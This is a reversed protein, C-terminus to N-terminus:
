KVMGAPTGKSNANRDQAAKLAKNEKNNLSSNKTDGLHGSVLMSDYDSSESSNFGYRHGFIRLWRTFDIDSYDANIRNEDGDSYFVLPNIKAENTAGSFTDHEAKDTFWMPLYFKNGGKIYSNGYGANKHGSKTWRSRVVDPDQRVMSATMGVQGTGRQLIRNYFKFNKYDNGIHNAFFKGGDTKLEGNIVAQNYEKTANEKQVSNPANGITKIGSDFGSILKKASNDALYGKDGTKWSYGQINHSKGVVYESSQLNTLIPTMQAGYVNSKNKIPDLHEVARPVRSMVISNSSGSLNTKESQTNAYLGTRLSDNHGNNYFKFGNAGAVGKRFHMGNDNFKWFSNISSYDAATDAGTTDEYRDHAEKMASSDAARYRIASGKALQSDFNMDMKTNDMLKKSSQGDLAGWGFRQLRVDSRIGDGAGAGITQDVNGLHETPQGDKAYRQLQTADYLTQMISVGQHKAALKNGDYNQGFYSNTVEPAISAFRPDIGTQYAIDARAVQGNKFPHIFNGDRSVFSRDGNVSVDRLHTSEPTTIKVRVYLPRRGHNFKNGGTRADISGDSHYGKAKLYGAKDKLDVGSYYKQAPKPLKSMDLTGNIVKQGTAQAGRQYNNILKEESSKNFSKISNANVADKLPMTKDYLSVTKNGIHSNDAPEAVIQIRVKGDLENLNPAFEVKSTTLLSFDDGNKVKNTKVKLANTNFYAKSGYKSIVKNSDHPGDNTDSTTQGHVANFDNAIDYTKDQKNLHDEMYNNYISDTKVRAKEKESTSMGKHVLGLRNNDGNQEFPTNTTVHITLKHNALTFVNQPRNYNENDKYKPNSPDVDGYPRYIIKPHQTEKSSGWGNHKVLEINGSAEGSKLDKVLTKGTTNDVVSIDKLDYPLELSDYIQFKADHGHMEDLNDKDAWNPMTVHLNYSTVRDFNQSQPKDTMSGSKNVQAEKHLTFNHKKPHVTVQNSVPNGPINKPVVQNGDGPQNNNDGFFTAKNTITPDENNNTVYRGNKKVEVPIAFLLTHNSMSKAASNTATWAVRQRGDLDLNNTAGDGNDGYAYEYWGIAKGAGDRHATKNYSGQTDFLAGLQKNEKLGNAGSNSLYYPSYHNEVGKGYDFNNIVGNKGNPGYVKGVGKKLQAQDAPQVYSNLGNVLAQQTTSTVGAASKGAKTLQDSSDYIINSMYSQSNSHIANFLTNGNESYPAMVAGSTGAKRAHQADLDMVMMPRNKTDLKLNPDLYDSFYLRKFGGDKSSYTNGANAIVYYYLQRDNKSDSNLKKNTDLISKYENPRISVNSNNGYRDIADGTADANLRRVGAIRDAKTGVSFFHLGNTSGLTGSTEGFKPNIKSVKTMVNTISNDSVGKVVQTQHKKVKATVKNTSTPNHVPHPRVQNTSNDPTEWSDFVEKTNLFEDNFDDRENAAMHDDLTGFMTIKIEGNDSTIAPKIDKDVQGNENHILASFKGSGDANAHFKFDTNKTLNASEHQNDSSSGVTVVATKYVFGKPFTEEGLKIQKLEDFGHKRIDGQPVTLTFAYEGGPELYSGNKLTNKKSLVASLEKNQEDNLGSLLTPQNKDDGDSYTHTAQNDNKPTSKMHTQDDKSFLTGLKNYDRGGQHHVFVNSLANGNASKSIVHGKIQNANSSTVPEISKGGGGPTGPTYPPKHYGVDKVGFQVNAEMSTPKMEYPVLANGNFNQFQRGATYFVAFPMKGQQGAIQASLKGNLTSYGHWDKGNNYKVVLRIYHNNLDNLNVKNGDQGFKKVDGWHLNLMRKQVDKTNGVNELKVDKSTEKSIQYGIVDKPPVANSHVDVGNITRTQGATTPKDVNLGLTVEQQNKDGPQNFGTSSFLIPSTGLQKIGGMPDVPNDKDKQNAKVYEGTDPDFLYDFPHNDLDNMESLTSIEEGPKKVNMQDGSRGNVGGQKKPNGHLTDGYTQSYKQGMGRVDMSYKRAQYNVLSNTNLSKAKNMLNIAMQCLQRQSVTTKGGNDNYVTWHIRDAGHEGRAMQEVAHTFGIPNDGTSWWSRDKDAYNKSSELAHFAMQTVYAYMSGPTDRFNDISDECDYGGFVSNKYKEFGKYGHDGAMALINFQGSKVFDDMTIETGPVKSYTTGSFPDRGKSDSVYHSQFATGGYGDTNVNICYIYWGQGNTHLTFGTYGSNGDQRGPYYLGDAHRNGGLFGMDHIGGDIGMAFQNQSAIKNKDLDQTVYQAHVENDNGLRLGLFNNSNSSITLGVVLGTGVLAPVVGYKFAKHM